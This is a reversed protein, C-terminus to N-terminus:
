KEKAKILLNSLKKGVEEYARTVDEVEECVDPFDHKLLQEIEKNDLKEDALALSVKKMFKGLAQSLEKQEKVASKVSRLVGTIGIILPILNVLITNWDFAM